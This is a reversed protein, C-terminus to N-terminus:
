SASGGLPVRLKLSAQVRFGIYGQLLEIDGNVTVSVKPCEGLIAHGAESAGRRARKDLGM